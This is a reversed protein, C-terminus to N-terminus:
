YPKLNPNPHTTQGMLGFCGGANLKSAMSRLGHDSYFGENQTNLWHSPSHDIDLLIADVLRTPQGKFFSNDQTALAFFDGLKLECRPDNALTEGLPVLGQRHWDIVPQMVEIVTLASVRSDELAAAATYGLGLGGVIVGLQDGKLQQLALKALAIEAEPFLSSMLFDDNLKVEYLVKGGLRPEARKRLSIDGLPTAQFDLEQFTFAM